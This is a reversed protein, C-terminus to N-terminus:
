RKLFADILEGHLTDMPTESVRVGGLLELSSALWGHEHVADARPPPQQEVAVEHIEGQPAAASMRWVIKRTANGSKPHLM